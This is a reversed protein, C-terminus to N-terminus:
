ANCYVVKGDKSTVYDVSDFYLNQQNEQNQHDLESASIEGIDEVIESNTDENSSGIDLDGLEKSEDESSETDQDLMALVEESPYKKHAM